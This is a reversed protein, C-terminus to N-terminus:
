LAMASAQQWPQFLRTASSTASRVMLIFTRSYQLRVRASGVDDTTTSTSEHRRSTRRM